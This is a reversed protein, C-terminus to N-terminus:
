PHRGIRLSAFAACTDHASPGVEDFTGDGRDFRTVSLASGMLSGVPPIIFFLAMLLYKIGGSNGRKLMYSSAPITSALTPRM